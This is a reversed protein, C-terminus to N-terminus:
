FSANSGFTHDPRANCSSKTSIPPPPRADIYGAESQLTNHEPGDHIDPARQTRILPCVEIPGNPDGTNARARFVSGGNQRTRECVEAPFSNSLTVDM